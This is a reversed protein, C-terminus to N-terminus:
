PRKARHTKKGGYQPKITQGIREALSGSDVEGEPWTWKIAVRPRGARPRSALYERINDECSKRSVAWANKNLRFGDLIGATLMRGIMADTVCVIECAEAVTIYQDCAERFAREDVPEDFRGLIAEHCVMWGKDAFPFALLQGKAIRQRVAQKSIGLMEAAQAISIPRRMTM